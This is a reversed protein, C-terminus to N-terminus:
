APSNCLGLALRRHQRHRASVKQPHNNYNLGNCLYTFYMSGLGALGGLVTGVFRCLGKFIVGGAGM